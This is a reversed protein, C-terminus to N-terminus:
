LDEGKKTSQIDSYTQALMGETILKGDSTRLVNKIRRFERRGWPEFYKNRVCFRVFDSRERLLKGDESIFGENVAHVLEPFSSVADDKSLIKEEETEFQTLYYNILTSSYGCLGLHESRNYIDLGVTECFQEMDIGREMLYFDYRALVTQTKVPLSHHTWRISEPRPCEWFYVWSLRDLIRLIENSETPYEFERDIDVEANWKIHYDCRNSHLPRFSSEVMENFYDEEKQEETRLDEESDVSSQIVSEVLHATVEPDFFASRRRDPFPLPEGKKQAEENAMKESADRELSARYESSRPCYSCITLAKELDEVFRKM